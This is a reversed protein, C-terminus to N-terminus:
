PRELGRRKMVRTLYTRNMKAERAAVTVNGRHRRLLDVFYVAEFRDVVQDRAESYPLGLVSRLDLSADNASPEPAPARPPSTESGSEASLVPAEGMVLSAEVVNRLERVNGPWRHQGLSELTGAPLLSELPESYGLLRLFHEVLLPIDELRERLPPVSLTVVALRYFLDQRFTGANVERRLDRHTASIVRVDASISQTGGVRRFSRREIVGLLATQLSPPLEGIEDLFVTGGAAREFAGLHQHEAGTFAGKEHGFLESAVLTPLLSGCDVTELPGNKRPSAEHIARAVVEKGTGTEGHLLVSVDSRSAREIQAMLRRMVPARGVIPGLEDGEFAEVTVPDADEVKLTTRGLKLTSKTPVVGREIRVGSVISGNTSGQDVILVGREHGILDAHYRSVTPDTLILDNNEGTGVAITEGRSLAVKGADPGELVEARLSRVPVGATGTSVTQGAGM